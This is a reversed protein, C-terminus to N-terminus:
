TNLDVSVDFIFNEDGSMDGNFTLNDWVSLPTLSFVHIFLFKLRLDCAKTGLYNKGLPRKFICGPITVTFDMIEFGPQLTIFGESTGQM